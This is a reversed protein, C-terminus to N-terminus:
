WHIQLGAKVLGELGVGLETFLGIHKGFRTQIGVLDLQYALGSVGINSTANDSRYAFGYLYGVGLGSYFSGYKGRLWHIDGKALLMLCSYSVDYIDGFDGIVNYSNANGYMFSATVSILKKKGFYDAGQVFVCANDGTEGMWAISQLFPNYASTGIRISHNHQFLKASDQSFCQMTALLLMIITIKLTKM